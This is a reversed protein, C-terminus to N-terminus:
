DLARAVIAAAGRGHQGCLEIIVLELLAIDELGTTSKLAADLNLLHGLAEALEEATFGAAAQLAKYAVFPHQKLLSNQK